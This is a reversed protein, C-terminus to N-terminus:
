TTVISSGTFVTLSGATDAAPVGLVPQLRMCPEPTEDRSGFTSTPQSTVTLPRNCGGEANDLCPDYKFFLM